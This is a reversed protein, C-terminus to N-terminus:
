PGGDPDASIGDLVYITWESEHTRPEVDLDRLYAGYRRYVHRPTPFWRVHTESMFDPVTALVRAGPRIRRLLRHDDDLHELVETCIVLDYDVAFLDTEFADAVEFRLQPCRSRAAEIAVSSLDFGVYDALLNREDLLHALQGSGCGIELVRSPEGIRAALAEWVIMYPSDRYHAAYVDSNAYKEDYWEASVAKVPRIRRKWAVLRRIVPLAQAANIARRRLQRM